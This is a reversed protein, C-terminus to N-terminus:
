LALLANYSSSFLLRPRSKSDRAEENASIRRFAGSIVPFPAHTPFIRSSTSHGLLPAIYLLYLVSAAQIDLDIGLNPNM